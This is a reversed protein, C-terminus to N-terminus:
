ISPIEKFGPDGPGLRHSTFLHFYLYHLTDPSNNIYNVTEYANLEHLKDNLTVQITYNVEQQFYEQSTAKSFPWIIFLCTFIWLGSSQIHHFIKQKSIDLSIKQMGSKQIM